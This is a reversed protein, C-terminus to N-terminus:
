RIQKNKKETEEVLHFAAVVLHSVATFASRRAARRRASREVAVVANEFHRHGSQDFEICLGDELFTHLRKKWENM